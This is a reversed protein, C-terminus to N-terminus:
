NKEFFYIFIYSVYYALDSLYFIIFFSVCPYGSDTIYVTMFSNQNSGVSNISTSPVDDGTTRANECQYETNELNEVLGNKTNCFNEMVAMGNKLENIVSMLKKIIGLKFGLKELNNETIQLFDNGDM